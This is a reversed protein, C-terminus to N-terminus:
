WYLGDRDARLTTRHITRSKHPLRTSDFRIPSAARRFTTETFLRRRRDTLAYGQDHSRPEPLPPYPKGNQKAPATEM